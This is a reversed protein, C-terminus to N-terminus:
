INFDRNKKKKETKMNVHKQDLTVHIGFVKILWFKMNLISLMEIKHITATKQSYLQSFM